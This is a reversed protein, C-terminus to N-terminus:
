YVCVIDRTLDSTVRIGRVRLSYCPGVVEIDYIEPILTFAAYGDSDTWVPGWTLETDLNYIIVGAGMQPVTGDKMVRVRLTVYRKPTTLDYRYVAGLPVVVDHYKPFQKVAFFGNYEVIHTGFPVRDFVVVGAINTAKEIPAPSVGGATFAIRQNEVPAGTSDVVSVQVSGFIVPKIPIPEIPIPEFPPFEFPPMSYLRSLYVLYAVAIGGIALGGIAVYPWWWWPDSAESAPNVRVM